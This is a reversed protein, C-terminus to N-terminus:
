RADSPNSIRRSPCRVPKTYLVQQKKSSRRLYRIKKAQKPERLNHAMRGIAEQPTLNDSLVNIVIEYGNIKM